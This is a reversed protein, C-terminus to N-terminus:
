LLYFTLQEGGPFKFNSNLTSVESSPPPLVEVPWRRKKEASAEGQPSDEEEASVSVSASASAACRGADELRRADELRHASQYLGTGTIPALAVTVGLRAELGEVKVLVPYHSHWQLGPSQM